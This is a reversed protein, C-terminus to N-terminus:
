LLSQFAIQVVQLDACVVNYITTNGIQYSINHGYLNNSYSCNM